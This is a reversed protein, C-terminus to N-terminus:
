KLLKDAVQQSLGLYLLNKQDGTRKVIEGLNRKKKILAAEKLHALNAAPLSGTELEGKERALSVLEAGVKTRVVVTNWGEIGEVSGVSVDAFESTM